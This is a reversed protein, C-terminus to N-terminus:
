TASLRPDDVWSFRPTCDPSERADFPPMVGTEIAALMRTANEAAADYTTMDFPGIGGPQHCGMCHQAMIPAVDQHWTARPQPEPVPDDRNDVDTGCATAILAVTLVYARM